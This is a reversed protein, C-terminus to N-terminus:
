NQGGGRSWSGIGDNKGIASVDSRLIARLEELNVPKSIYSSIAQLDKDGQIALIVIHDEHVNM